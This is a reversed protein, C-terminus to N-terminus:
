TPIVRRGYEDIDFDEEEDSVSNYDKRANVINSILGNKVPDDTLAATRMM